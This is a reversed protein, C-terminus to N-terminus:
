PIRCARRAQSLLSFTNFVKGTAFNAPAMFRTQYAAPALFPFLNGVISPRKGRSKLSAEQQRYVDM